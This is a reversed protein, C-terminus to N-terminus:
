WHNVPVSKVHWHDTWDNYVFVVEVGLSLKM